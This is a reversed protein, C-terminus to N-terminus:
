FIYFNLLYFKKVKENEEELIHARQKIDENEGEIQSIKEDIGHRFNAFKQESEAYKNEWHERLEAEKALDESLKLM